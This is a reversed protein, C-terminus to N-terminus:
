LGVWVLYVFVSVWISLVVQGCGSVLSRGALSTPASFKSVSDNLPKKEFDHYSVNAREYGCLGSGHMLNTPYLVRPEGKDMDLRLEGMDNITYTKCTFVDIVVFSPQYGNMMRVTYEGSQSGQTSLVMVVQRGERGKRFGMESLGKYIPYTQTNLYEPDVRSAHKRLRNLTATAKYLPAKTDYGSLWLAERNEPDHSGSFHQEQGQYIIPIGDFLLTFTLVNKALTMDDKHSAFRAIDHNESFSAMATVDPCNNKMVEVQDPLSSTNGLTFADLLSYYIPYNPLSTLKDQYGCIRRVSRDFVEGTIFTNAEEQFVPLFDPTIHKAADLRLGDISYNSITEKIWGLLMAQVQKDETKLDPLPVVNDGTWCKQALSYDNYDTIKCYPHFYKADNFPNLDSYEVDAPSGGSGTIYAMNNIVTDMMLYMGRDHLAKSLDLLDQKTGFHSNLSYMDQVWYGHYAEGYPARGEVNKVIPSIMVADFGMDQIYDLQNIMGRWTGGCHLGQTTNCGHSTSGDTRAFRDTM